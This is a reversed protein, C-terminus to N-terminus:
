PACGNVKVGHTYDQNCAWSADDVDNCSNSGTATSNRGWLMYADAHCKVYYVTGTLLVSDGSVDFTIWSWAATNYTDTDQTGEVLTGPVGSANTYIGCTTTVASGNGRLYVAFETIYTNATVTIPQAIYYTNANLNNDSGGMSILESDNSTTCSVAAINESGCVYSNSDAQVRLCFLLIILLLYFIKKMNIGM